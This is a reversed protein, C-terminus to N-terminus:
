AGGDLPSLEAVLARLSALGVKGVREISGRDIGEFQDQPTHITSFDGSTFFLVPVGAAAFSAHDSSANPPLSSPVAPVGLEAALRLAKESLTPSGIVEVRTGIATVDFNLMVEPLGGSAQLERVLARSGHLGFEEAGFTAFCLGADLGDAAMARALELVVATGSANDNAGPVGPVTDHHGGVLVRCRGNPEARAVVNVSALTGPPEAVVAIEAGTEAAALLAERAEIGVAVVPVEAVGQLTGLFTGPESNVIVLAAAGAGRVNAYKGAFTVEGRDAIAVAGRVDRATVENNRGLGVYVARGRVEGSASGGLALAAFREGGLIVWGQRLAQDEVRFPRIETAYGYREFEARLYQAARQEGPSGTVRAGIAVSLERIHTMARNTDFDTAGLEGGGLLSSHATSTEGDGCATLHVAIIALVLLWPRIRLMSIFGLAAERFTGVVRGAGSGAGFGDPM